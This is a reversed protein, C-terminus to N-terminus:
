IAKKFLQYRLNLRERDPHNDTRAPLVIMQGHMKQIGYKLMPGDIEELIDKRVIIKFDPNVGVINRDYAAHHIKCLSLGNPVIPEGGEEGDPIIHAADLLEPHRLRCFACQDKYASLVRIRFEAQHLRHIAETTIHRRYLQSESEFVIEGQELSLQQYVSSHEGISVIFSLNHPQDQEIYVPWAALCKGKEVGHFYLLPLRKQMVTRLGANDRHNPDIIHKELANQQQNFKLYESTKHRSAFKRRFIIILRFL